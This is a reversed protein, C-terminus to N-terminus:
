SYILAVTGMGKHDGLREPQRDTKEEMTMMNRTNIFGRYIQIEYSRGGTRGMLSDIRAM